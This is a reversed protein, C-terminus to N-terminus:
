NLEAPVDGLQGVLVARGGAERGGDRDLLDVDLWRLLLLARRARRRPREGALGVARLAVARGAYGGTTRVIRGDAFEYIEATYNDIVLASAKGTARWRTVTVAAEGADIYEAIEAKFDDFAEEWRDWIAM